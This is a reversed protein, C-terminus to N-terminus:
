ARAPLGAARLAAHAKPSAGLPNENSALKIIDTLGFELAVAEIPKGTVYPSIACVYGLAAEAVPLADSM